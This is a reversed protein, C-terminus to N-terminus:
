GNRAKKLAAVEEGLAALKQNVAARDDEITKILDRVAQTNGGVTVAFKGPINHVEDCLRDIRRGQLEVAKLTDLLALRLAEDASPETM